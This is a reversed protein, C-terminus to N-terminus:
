HWSMTDLKCNAEVGIMQSTCKLKWLVRLNYMKSNQKDSIFPSCIAFHSHSSVWFFSMCFWMWRGHILCCHSLSFCTASLATLTISFSHQNITLWSNQLCCPCLVAWRRGRLSHQLKQSFNQLKMQNEYAFIHMKDESNAHNSQSV